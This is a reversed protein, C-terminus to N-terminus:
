PGALGAMARAHYSVVIDAGARRIAVLQEIIAREFDLLGADAAARVMAYEGSVQYACLPLDSGERADRILDLNTLAPKFLLVDAGEAEDLQWERRAERRNHAPMQYSTRDGFQPASDAAARFPGYFASAMKVAYSVIGVRSFGAEDLAARMAGVRGDMMDSPCVFDVGARALEVAQVCLAKVSEDNLITGDKVLGCHGHTTYSCLCVDSFIPFSATTKKLATIASTLPALQEPLKEPTDHKFPPVGFLMLGGCGARALAVAEEVLPETSVQWLATGKKAERKVGKEPVVFYPQVLNQLGVTTEQFLKRVAATERLRRMRVPLKM